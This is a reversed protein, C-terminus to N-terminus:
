NLQTELSNGIPQTRNNQTESIPRKQGIVNKRNEPFFHCEQIERYKQFNGSHKFFIKKWFEPFKWSFILTKETFYVVFIWFIYYFANKGIEPFKWFDPFFNKEWNGPFKWIGPFLWKKRFNGYEQEVIEEETKSRHYWIYIILM